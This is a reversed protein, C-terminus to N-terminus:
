GTSRLHDDLLRFHSSFQSCPIYARIPSDEQDALPAQTGETPFGEFFPVDQVMVVLMPMDSADEVRTTIAKEPLELVVITSIPDLAEV